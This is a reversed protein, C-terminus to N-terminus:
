GKMRIGAVKGAVVQIDASWGEAECLDVIDVLRGIRDAKAKLANLGDIKAKAIVIPSEKVKTLGDRYEKVWAGITRYDYGHKRQLSRLTVGTGKAKGDIYEKAVTAKIANMTM